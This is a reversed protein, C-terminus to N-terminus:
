RLSREQSTVKLLPTIISAIGEFFCFVCAFIAPLYLEIRMKSGGPKGRESRSIRVARKMGGMKRGPETAEDPLPLVFHALGWIAEIEAGPLKQANHTGCEDLCSEKYCLNPGIRIESGEHSRGRDNM